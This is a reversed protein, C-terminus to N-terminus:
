QGPMAGLGLRVSEENVYQLFDRTTPVRRSNVWIAPTGTVGLRLGEEIDSVVRQKTRPDARCKEFAKTELGVEAALKQVSAPDPLTAAFQPQLEFVKDHYPWFKGQEQACVGGYALLCAGPHISATPHCEKDLPFFKYYVAVREASHHVYRGFAEAVSKFAPCRFDSFEATKIPADAPGEFPAGDLKPAAAAEPRPAPTPDAAGLLIVGLGASLLHRGIRTRDM